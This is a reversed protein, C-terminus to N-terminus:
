RGLVCCTDQLCRGVTAGRLAVTGRCKSITGKKQTYLISKFFQKTVM